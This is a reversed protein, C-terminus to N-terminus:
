WENQDQIWQIQAVHHDIHWAYSPLAEYLSVDTGAEPHFYTLEMQADELSEILGAWREHLGELISLSSDLPLTKADVIESWKTENYSKILPSAETLAWKFRIYANMHSDAMHHVIQRITWNKYKTDLQEDSLGEVVARIKQPGLRILRIFNAKEDNSYSGPALFEGAPFEPPTNSSIM